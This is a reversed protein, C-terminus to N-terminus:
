PLPPVDIQALHANLMEKDVAGREISRIIGTRDVFITHPIGSIGYTIGAQFESDDLQPFTFNFQERFAKIDAHNKDQFVIGVMQVDGRQHLQALLPAEARCPICWSAWFNIVMPKTVSWDFPQGELTQLAPKPLEKGIMSPDAAPRLLFYSLIGITLFIIVPLIKNM